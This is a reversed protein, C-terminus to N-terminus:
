ITKSMLKKRKLDILKKLKEFRKKILIKDKDGNNKIIILLKWMKSCHYWLDGFLFLLYNQDISWAYQM